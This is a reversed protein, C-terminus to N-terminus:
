WAMGVGLLPLGLPLFETVEGCDDCIPYAFAVDGWIRAGILRLGYNVLVVDGPDLSEGEDGVVDPVFVEVGARLRPGLRVSGGFNPLLLAVSENDVSVFYGQAGMNVFRDPQGLTVMPGGGYFAVADADEIVPLFAGGFAFLGVSVMPAHAAVKVQPAVLFAGLPPGTQVGVEVHDTAGYDFTWHGLDFITWAAQGRPRTFATPFFIGRTAGPDRPWGAAVEPPAAPAPAPAAVGLAPAEVGYLVRLAAAAAQATDPDNAAMESLRRRARQGPDGLRRIEDVCFTRAIPDPSSCLPLVRLVPDRAAETQAAGATGALAAVVSVTLITRAAPVDPRPALHTGRGIDEFRRWKAAPGRRFANSSPREAAPVVEARLDNRAATRELSLLHDM